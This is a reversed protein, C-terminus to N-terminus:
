YPNKLKKLQKDFTILKGSISKTKVFLICDVPDINKEAYIELANILDLSDSNQIGRYHLLDSLKQAAEKRPVKYYKTLIYLCEVIVSELIIIKTSGNRANNFLIEAKKYQDIQDKLLYRLIVNTDPLNIM